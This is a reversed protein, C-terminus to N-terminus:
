LALAGSALFRKKRNLPYDKLGQNANYLYDPLLVPNGPKATPVLAFAPLLGLM